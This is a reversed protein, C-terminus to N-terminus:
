RNLVFKVLKSLGLDVLGLFIAMLVSLIIVVWTASIAQQRSPWTVKKLEGKSEIVYQKAESFKGM